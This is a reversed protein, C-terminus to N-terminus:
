QFDHYDDDDDRKGEDYECNARILDAMLQQNKEDEIEDNVMEFVDDNHLDSVVIYNLSPDQNTSVAQSSTNNKDM